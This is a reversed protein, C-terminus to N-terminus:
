YMSPCKYLSIASSDLSTSGVIYLTQINAKQAIFGECSYSCMMIRATFCINQLRLKYLDQPWTMCDYDGGIPCTVRELGGSTLVTSGALNDIDEYGWAAQSLGAIILPLHFLLAIQKSLQHLAYVLHALVPLPLDCKSLVFNLSKRRWLHRSSLDNGDTLVKVHRLRNEGPM